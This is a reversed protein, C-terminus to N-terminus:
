AGPMYVHAGRMPKYPWDRVEGVPATVREGDAQLLQGLACLGYYCGTSDAGLITIRDPRVLLRYGERPPAFESTAAGLRSALAGNSALGVAITAEEASAAAASAIPLNGIAQPLAPGSLAPDLWVTAASRGVNFAGDGFTAWQPYPYITPRSTRHSLM